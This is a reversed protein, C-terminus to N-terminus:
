GTKNMGRAGCRAPPVPCDSASRAWGCHGQLKHKTAAVKSSPARSMHWTPARGLGPQIRRPLSSPASLPPSPRASDVTVRRGRLGAGHLRPEAGPRQGTRAGGAGRRASESGAWLQPRAPGVRAWPGSICGPAASFRRRHSQRPSRWPSRGPCLGVGPGRKVVRPGSRVLPWHHSRVSPAPPPVPCNPFRPLLIGAPVLSTPPVPPM